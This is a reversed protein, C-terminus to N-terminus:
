EKDDQHQDEEQSCEEKINMNMVKPIRKKKM